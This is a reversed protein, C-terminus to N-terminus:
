AGRRSFSGLARWRNRGSGGAPGFDDLPICFTENKNVSELPFLLSLTFRDLTLTQVSFVLLM